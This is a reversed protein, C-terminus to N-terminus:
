GQVDNGEGWDPLDVTQGALEHTSDSLFQIRGDTVFSHCVPVAPNMSGRNVLISPTFTPKDMSGNWGWLPHENPDGRVVVQHGCKCGPCEFVVSYDTLWHIKDAM